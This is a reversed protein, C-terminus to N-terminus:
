AVRQASTTKTRTRPYRQEKESATSRMEVSQRMSSRCNSLLVAKTTSWGRPWISSRRIVAPTSIRGPTTSPIHSCRPIKSWRTGASKWHRRRRRSRGPPSRRFTRESYRPDSHSSIRHAIARACISRRIIISVPSGRNVLVATIEQRSRWRFATRQWGRRKTTPLNRHDDLQHTRYWAMESARSEQVSTGTSVAMAAARAVGRMVIMVVSTMGMLIAAVSRMRLISSKRKGGVGRDMGLLWEMMPILLLTMTPIVATRTTMTTTMTIM